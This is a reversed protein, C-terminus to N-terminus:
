LIRNYIYNIMGNEFDISNILKKQQEQELLKTGFLFFNEQGNENM